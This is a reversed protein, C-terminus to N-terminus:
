MTMGREQGGSAVHMMELLFEVPTMRRVSAEIAQEAALKQALRKVVSVGPSQLKRNATGAQRGGAKPIGRPRPMTDLRGKRTDLISVTM